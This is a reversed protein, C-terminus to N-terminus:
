PKSSEMSYIKFNFGVTVLVSLGIASFRAVSMMTYLISLWQHMNTFNNKKKKFRTRESSVFWNITLFWDFHFNELVKTNSM